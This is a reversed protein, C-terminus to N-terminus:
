DREAKAFPLRKAWMWRSIVLRSALTHSLVCIM